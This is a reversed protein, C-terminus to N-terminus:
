ALGYKVNEIVALKTEYAKRTPNSSRVYDYESVQRGPNHWVYTTTLHLPAVVDGTAGEAYNPEEGAHISKTAFGYNEIKRKEKM